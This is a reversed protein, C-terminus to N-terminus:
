RAQLRASLWGFASEQMALDFKHPGAYFEGAYADGRGVAQYHAEIRTHAAQMGALSFLPDARNYQVLLPSPARSAVLDPWDGIAALGPPLFMWTHQHVHEDLLGAYTSMMGVVVSAALDDATAQLLAARCGGGSLGVCGVRSDIVDDRSKLYALAVRDEFAVVGALTTGIVSCYKEVLHEHDRAAANYHAIAGQETPRDRISPPMSELPFRRSGWLFGDHVLVVFGRSALANAFARGQYARERLQVIESAPAAPGDAIKEKGFYKFGDHSHLGLVGPLPTTASRPRLVWARTRPGYGVSWSIEEGDLGDATWTQDVSVHAPTAPQRSFGILDRIRQRTAAGPNLEPRPPLQERAAAVWDSFVGLHEYYADTM